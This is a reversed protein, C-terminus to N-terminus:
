YETLRQWGGSTQKWATPNLGCASYEFLEDYRNIMEQETEFFEERDLFGKDAGHLKYIRLKYM